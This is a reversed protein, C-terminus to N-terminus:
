LSQVKEYATRASSAPGQQNILALADQIRDLDILLYVKARVLDEDRPRLKLGTYNM